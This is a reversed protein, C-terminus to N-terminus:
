DCAEQWWGRPQASIWPSKGIDKQQRWVGVGLVMGGNHTHPQAQGVLSLGLQLVPSTSFLLPWGGLKTEKDILEM